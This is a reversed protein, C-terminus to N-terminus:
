VVASVVVVVVGKVSMAKVSVAKVMYVVRVCGECRSYRRVVKVGLMQM